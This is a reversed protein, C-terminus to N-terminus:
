WRLVVVLRKGAYRCDRGVEVGVHRREQGYGIGIWRSRADQCAEDTSGTLAHGREWIANQQVKGVRDVWRGM